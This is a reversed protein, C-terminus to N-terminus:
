PLYEMGAHADVLDSIEQAVRRHLLIEKVLPPLPSFESLPDVANGDVVTVVARSGNGFAVEGQIVGPEVDRLESMQVVDRCPMADAIQRAVYKGLVMGIDQATVPSGSQGCCHSRGKKCSKANKGNRGCACGKSGCHGQRAKAQEALIALKIRRRRAKDALRKRERQEPTLPKRAKATKGSTGTKRSSGGAKRAPSKSKNKQM